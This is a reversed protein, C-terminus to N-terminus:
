DMEELMQNSKKLFQKMKKSTEKMMPKEYKQYFLLMGAGMAMFAMNKALNM